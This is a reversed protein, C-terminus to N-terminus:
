KGDAMKLRPLILELARQYHNPDDIETWVLDDVCYYGVNYRSSVASLCDEYHFDSPFAIEQHYFECMVNLLKKSIKSVGVLEGQRQHQNVIEKTILEIKGSQGYVYVEDGSDTKGSLLIVDPLALNQLESIARNEYILDSELLLFDSTLYSRALFLSHMSGTIAFDKNEVFQVMPFSETLLNLYQEKQFGTVMIINKIGHAILRELSTKIIEKGEINLLGKPKNSIVANLRTGMGAALIIATDVKKSNITM